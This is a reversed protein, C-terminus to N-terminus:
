PVYMSKKPSGKHSLLLSYVQWHLHDLNSVQTSFIGQLLFHCSVGTNKGSSGMSLPSQHATPDGLMLCSKTALCCCCCQKKSM